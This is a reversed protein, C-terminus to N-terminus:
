CHPPALWPVDWQWVPVLMVADGVAPVADWSCCGAVSGYDGANAASVACGWALGAAGAGRVGGGLRWCAPRFVIALHPRSPDVLAPRAALVKVSRRKRPIAVLGGVSSM